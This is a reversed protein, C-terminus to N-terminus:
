VISTPTQRAADADCVSGDGVHRASRMMAASRRPWACTDAPISTAPAGIVACARLSPPQPRCTPATLSRDRQIAGAVRRAVCGVTPYWHAPRAGRPPRRWGGRPESVDVPLGWQRGVTPTFRRRPRPRHAARAPARGADAAFRPRDNVIDPAHDGDHPGPEDPCRADAHDASAAPRASENSRRAKRRHTRRDFSRECRAFLPQPQTRLRSM